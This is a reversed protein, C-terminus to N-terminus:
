KGLSSACFRLVGIRERTDNLDYITVREREGLVTNHISVRQDNVVSVVFM